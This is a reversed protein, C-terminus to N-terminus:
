KYLNTIDIISVSLITLYLVASPCVYLGMKTENKEKQSFSFPTIYHELVKLLYNM